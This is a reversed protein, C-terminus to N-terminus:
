LWVTDASYISIVPYLCRSTNQTIGGIGARGNGVLCRYQSAFQWATRDAMRAVASSKNTILKQM